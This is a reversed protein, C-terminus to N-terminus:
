INIERFHGKTTGLVKWGWTVELIEDQEVKNNNSQTTLLIIWNNYM